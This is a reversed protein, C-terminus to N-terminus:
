KLIKIIRMGEKPAGRVKWVYGGTENTNRKNAEDVLTRIMKREGLTYDNTISLKKFSIKNKLMWLKSMFQEKDRTTRMHLMVPRNKGDKKM